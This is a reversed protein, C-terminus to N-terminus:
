VLNKPDPACDFCVDWVMSLALASSILRGLARRDGGEAGSGVAAAAAPLANDNGGKNGEANEKNGLGM